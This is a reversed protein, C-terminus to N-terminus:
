WIFNSFALVLICVGAFEVADALTCEFAEMLDGLMPAIALPAFGQTFTIYTVTTITSIKWKKRWNLPDCPDNSPQPIRKPRLHEFEMIETGPLVEIPIDDGLSVGSIEVRVNDAVLDDANQSLKGAFPVM